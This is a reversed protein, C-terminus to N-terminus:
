REDDLTLQEVQGHIMRQRLRHLQDASRTVSPPLGRLHLHTYKANGEVEEGIERVDRRFSQLQNAAVTQIGGTRLSPILRLTSQADVALM